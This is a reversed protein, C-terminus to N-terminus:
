FGSLGSMKRIQEYTLWFTLSWPAMRMWTPFFGKYLGMIGEHSVTSTLCHWSSKYILGRGKSDLPQNMIRTKVVDAPTGFCASILGSALSSVIHTRYDDQFKFNFIKVNKILYHKVLDYTGLDGLNVLAARQVNVISGRWLGRIGGQKYIEKFAHNVGTIRPSKGELKRKGEAQMMVKVLDTPSAIFQALAGSFTGVLVAIGLHSNDNPSTRKDKIINRLKEYIILRSGTYVCHRYVAPTIGAWLNRIGENKAINIATRFMGLKKPVIIDGKTSRTMM